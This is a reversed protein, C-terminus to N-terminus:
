PRLGTMMSPVKVCKIAKKKVNRLMGASAVNGPLVLLVAYM